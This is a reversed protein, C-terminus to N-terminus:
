LFAQYGEIYDFNHYLWASSEMARFYVSSDDMLDYCIQYSPLM